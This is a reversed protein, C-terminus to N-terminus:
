PRREVSLDRTLADFRSNAIAVYIGTLAIAVLIVALGVLIGLSTTGGQIKEALLPKDYAVLLIYGFYVALMIISLTWALNRRARVLRQFRPDGFIEPRKDAKM